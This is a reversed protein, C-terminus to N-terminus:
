KRQMDVSWQIMSTCLRLMQHILAFDTTNVTVPLLLYKTMEFINHARNKKFTMEFSRLQDNQLNSHTIGM